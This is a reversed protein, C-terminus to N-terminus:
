IKMRRRIARELSLVDAPGYVFPRVTRRPHLEVEVTHTTFTARDYKEALSKGDVVTEDRKKMPALIEDAIQDAQALLQLSMSLKLRGLAQKKVEDRTM